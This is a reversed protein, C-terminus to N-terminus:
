QRKLSFYNIIVVTTMAPFASPIQKGCREVLFWLVNIFNSHKYMGGARLLWKKM